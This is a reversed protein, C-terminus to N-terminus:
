SVKVGSGPIIRNAGLWQKRFVACEERLDEPFHAPVTESLETIIVYEYNEGKKRMLWFGMYNSVRHGHFFEGVARSVGPHFTGGGPSEIFDTDEVKEVFGPPYDGVQLELDDGCLISGDKLLEAACNLDSIVNEYYHSGDIYILDFQEKRLIPMADRLEARIHSVAVPALRTNELFLSYAQNNCALTDMTKYPDGKAKDKESLYPAWTDVCMLSGGNPHLSLGEAITLASCGMWSGVELAKLPQESQLKRIAELLFLHRKGGGQLGTDDNTFIM